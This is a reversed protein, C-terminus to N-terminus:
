WKLGQERYFVVFFLILPLHFLLAQIATLVFAFQGVDFLNWVILRHVWIDTTANVLASISLSVIVIKTATRLQM